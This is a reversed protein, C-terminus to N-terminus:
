GGLFPPHLFAHYYADRQNLMYWLRKLDDLIRCNVNKLLRCHTIAYGRVNLALYARPIFATGVATRLENVRRDRTACGWAPLM